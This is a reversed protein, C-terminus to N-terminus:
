ITMKYCNNEGLCGADDGRTAQTTAEKGRQSPPSTMFVKIPPKPLVRVNLTIEDQVTHM